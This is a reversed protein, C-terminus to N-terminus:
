PAGQWVKEVACICLYICCTHVDEYLCSNFPGSYYCVICSFMGRVASTQLVFFINNIDTCVIFHARFLSFLQLQSEYDFGIWFYAFWKLIFSFVLSFLFCTLKAFIM